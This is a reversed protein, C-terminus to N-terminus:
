FSIVHRPHCPDHSQFRQAKRFDGASLHEGVGGEGERQGDLTDHTAGVAVKEM